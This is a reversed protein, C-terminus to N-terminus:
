RVEIPTKFAAASAPGAITAILLMSTLVAAPIVLSNPKPLM